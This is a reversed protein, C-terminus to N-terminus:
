FHFRLFKRSRPHIPIHFYTDSFDLSTVWEGQLLSIRITEPTEMKFTKISLFKSLAILDLIPRWKKKPKPVIFLRNFFALSTRIRVREVAKKHILAHLAEKLYLNRLPSAYGSIILTKSCKACWGSVPGGM